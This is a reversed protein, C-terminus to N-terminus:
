FRGLWCVLDRDCVGFMRKKPATKRYHGPGCRRACASMNADSILISGHQPQRNCRRTETRRRAIKRHGLEGELCDSVQDAECGLTFM